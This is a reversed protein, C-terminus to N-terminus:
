GPPPATRDPAPRDQPATRASSPRRRRRIAGATWGVLAVLAVFALSQWLPRDGRDTGPRTDLTALLGTALQLESVECQETGYECSFSDSFRSLVRREGTDVAVEIISGSVADEGMVFTVLRTPSRWGLMWGVTVPQPAARGEGTADVFALENSWRQGPSDDSWPVTAILAGDPLWAHRTLLERGQPLALRRQRQGDVAVIWSERDLQLALRLSDPAFSVSRVPKFQPHHTSTGTALDLIVLESTTSTDGNIANGGPRFRASVPAGGYAVYRGNPSWALLRVGVPPDVRLERRRGSALDVLVLSTANGRGDGVLVQTGDPSLLAEAYGGEDTSREEIADVRRYTDRDAGVVLPQYTSFWDYNGYTYMAVARGPPQKTVTATRRSYGAFRDPLSPHGTPAATQEGGPALGVLVPITGAVLVAAAAAAILAGVARRQRVSRRAVTVTQEAFGPRLVPEPEVDALAFLATLERDTM